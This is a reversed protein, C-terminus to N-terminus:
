DTKKEMVIKIQEDTEPKVTYNRTIYGKKSLFLPQERRQKDPPIELFFYGNEDTQTAINDVSVRVNAMFDGEEDMVIGRLGALSNDPEVAVYVQKSLTYQKEPNAMQVREAEVTIPVDQGRFNSPIGKFYAEGLETIDAKRRDGELDIIVEGRGKLLLDQKSNPGHVYVTLNFSQTNPVLKFGGVVVLLVIVAPGGLTLSGGMTKGTYTAYSRMVGFLFGGASLGLPLLLIYFVMQDLDKSVLDDAMFIFLVLIGLSFILAVVSIIAYFIASMPQKDPHKVQKAM